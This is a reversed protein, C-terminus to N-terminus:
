YLHLTFKSNNMSHWILDVLLSTIHINFQEYVNWILNSSTEWMDILIVSYCHIWYPLRLLVVTLCVCWFVDMKELVDHLSESSMCRCVDRHRVGHLVRGCMPLGSGSRYGGVCVGGGIKQGRQGGKDIGKVSYENMRFALGVWRGPISWSYFHLPQTGRQRPENILQSLYCNIWGGQKNIATLSRFPSRWPTGNELEALSRSKPHSSITVLVVTASLMKPENVQLSWFAM